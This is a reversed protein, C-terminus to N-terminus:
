TKPEYGAEKELNAESNAVSKDSDSVAFIDMLVRTADELVSSNLSYIITQAERRTRVLHADKLISFHHSLSPKSIQFHESVEGASLSGSALIKLIERRTPDSLAKFM